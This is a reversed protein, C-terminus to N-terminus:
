SKGNVIYQEYKDLKIREKDVFEKYARKLGVIFEKRTQNKDIKLPKPRQIVGLGQARIVLCDWSIHEIPILDTDSTVNIEGFGKSINYDVFIYSLDNEKNLLWNYIKIASGMNPSFNNGGEKNSKVDVAHSETLMFDGISKRGKGKSDTLPRDYKDAYIKEIQKYENM